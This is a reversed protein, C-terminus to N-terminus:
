LTRLDLHWAILFSVEKQSYGHKPGLIKGIILPDAQRAGCIGISEFVKLAMAEVAASMVEPRAAEIPFAIDTYDTISFFYKLIEKGKDDTDTFEGSVGRPTPSVYKGEGAPLVQPAIDPANASARERSYTSKGQRALPTERKVRVAFTDVPFNPVITYGAEVAALCKRYFDGRRKSLNGHRIYTEFQWGSTRAVDAAEFLEDTESDCVRIKAKLWLKLNEQALVM